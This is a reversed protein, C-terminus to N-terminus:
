RKMYFVQWTKVSGQDDLRKATLAQAAQVLATEQLFELRIEEEVILRTVAIGGGLGARSSM